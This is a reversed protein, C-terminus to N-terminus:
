CFAGDREDVPVQTLWGTVGAFCTGARASRGQGYATYLVEWFSGDFLQSTTWLQGLVSSGCTVAHPGHSPKNQGLFVIMPVANRIRLYPFGPKMCTTTYSRDRAGSDLLSGRFGRSGSPSSLPAGPGRPFCWSGLFFGKRPRGGLKKGERERKPGDM